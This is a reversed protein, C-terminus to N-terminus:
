KKGGVCSLMMFVAGLTIFADAVNFVPWHYIGIHADIFDIVYGYHVRDVLNGLAGGIMCAIALSSYPQKRLLLVVLSAIILVSFSIFFLNQWGGAHSLFSFAAGTNFALTFQLVPVIVLPANSLYHLAMCKSTQDLIVILCSLWLWRM